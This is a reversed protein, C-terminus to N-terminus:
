DDRAEFGAIGSFAERELDAMFMARGLEGRLRRVDRLGMAGLIELLQDRWAAILNVLRQVAWAPEFAPLSLIASDRDRAEGDIRGQLAVLLATDLAVADAGCIIAKPVDAATIIGGSGILVTEERVGEKVLANHVSRIADRIFLGGCEGHYNATVHFLRVGKRVLPMLDAELPLRAFVAADPFRGQIATHAAADWGELEILRPAMPLRDLLGLEEPHVLPAVASSGLDLDLLRHLPIIALTELRAAAQALALQLRESECRLPPADFLFPISLSLHGPLHGVPEGSQDLHLFSPRGHLDVETSIFERGHIGDRTPRVIESMDTWMGDWGTGGFGGRYGAGRVPIQGTAAEQLNTEVKDPAFFSDGLHQREPNPSITVIEPYELACRLCGVCQQPRPAFGGVPGSFTGYVCPRSTVVALNGRYHVIETLLLQALRRKRVQVVFRNPHPAIDPCSEAAIRYRSYVKM